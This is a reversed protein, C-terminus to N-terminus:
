KNYLFIWLDIKSFFSRSQQQIFYVTRQQISVVQSGRINDNERNIKYVM